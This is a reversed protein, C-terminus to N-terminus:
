LPLCYKVHYANQIRYLDWLFCEHVSDRYDYQNTTCVYVVFSFKSENSGYVIILNMLLWTFIHFIQM